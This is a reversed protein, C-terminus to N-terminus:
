IHILSLTYDLAFVVDIGDLCIDTNSASGSSGNTYIDGLNAYDGFISVDTGNGNCIISAGNATDSSYQVDLQYAPEDCNLPNTFQKVSIAM